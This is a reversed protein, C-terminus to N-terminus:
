SAVKRSNLEEALRQAKLPNKIVKGRPAIWGRRNVSYVLTVSGVRINDTTNTM